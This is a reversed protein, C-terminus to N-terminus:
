HHFFQNLFDHTIQTITFLIEISIDTILAGILHKKNEIFLGRDIGVLYLHGSSEPSIAFSM